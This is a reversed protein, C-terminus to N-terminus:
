FILRESECGSESKRWTVASCKKMLCWSPCRYEASTFDHWWNIIIIIMRRNKNMQAITVVTLFPVTRKNKRSSIWHAICVHELLHHQLAPLGAPIIGQLILRDHLQQDHHLQPKTKFPAQSTAQHRRHTRLCDLKSVPHEKRYKPHQRPPLGPWNWQRPFVWWLGYGWCCQLLHTDKSEEAEEDGGSHHFLQGCRVRHSVSLCVPLEGMSLHRCSKRLVGTAYLGVCWHHHHVNDTRHHHRSVSFGTTVTAASVNCLIINRYSCVLLLLFNDKSSRKHVLTFDAYSCNHWVFWLLHSLTVFYNLRPLPCPNQFPMDKIMRLTKVLM